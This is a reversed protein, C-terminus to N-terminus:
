DVSLDHTMAMKLLEVADTVFLSLLAAALQLSKEPAFHPIGSALLCFDRQVENPIQINSFECCALVIRSDYGSSASVSAIHAAARVSVGPM